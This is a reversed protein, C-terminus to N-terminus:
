KKFVLKGTRVMEKAARAILVYAIGGGKAENIAGMVQSFTIQGKLFAAVLALQDASLSRRQKAKARKLLSM